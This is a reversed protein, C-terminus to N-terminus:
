SANRRVTFQTRYGQEPSYTHNTTSVYYRGSFRKGIELIEIMKGARIASNGYCTGEGTIYAIAMTDFQGRAIQDAEAQSRIPHTVIARQAKGFAKQTAKPGSTKGLVTSESGVQAKGILAAKQVPNWGHVEIQSVLDLTSLRPSFELLEQELHLKAVSSAQYLPPQFCLLKNDITVEYGIRRAREQLFALDTQNSQLIYELQVKTDKVKAQLGQELAIQGAIASDKIKTFSRTKHGRLLRHRLDHGRVVLLPIEDQTFAPELGTIEGVILSKLSNEYGMQIEVLNGCDFLSDDIWTLKGSLLDFTQLELTFMGPADVDEAVTVRMLDSLVRNPLPRNNVSVQLSPALAQTPSLPVQLLNM